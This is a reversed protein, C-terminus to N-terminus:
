HILIDDDDVELAERNPIKSFYVFDSSSRIHVWWNGEFEDEVDELLNIIKKM